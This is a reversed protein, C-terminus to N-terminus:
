VIDIYSALTAINTFRDIQLEDGNSFTLFFNGNSVSGFQAVVQEATLSAQWLGDDLQLADGRGLLFDIIRDQGFGPRFVFTDVGSGGSLLDRGEAGELTDNGYGGELTDDGAGGFLSDRGMQGRLLDGNDEGYVQDDGPGASVTDNGSSGFITDYSWGGSVFDDGSGAYITDNGRAGSITDSGADGVILDSRAGGSLLNNSMDGYIVSPTEVAPVAVLAGTSLAGNAITYSRFFDHDGFLPDILQFGTATRGASIKNVLAPSYAASGLAFDDYSGFIISQDILAGASTGFDALIVLADGGAASLIALEASYDSKGIQHELTISVPRRHVGTYVAVFAAAAERGYDSDSFTLAVVGQSATLNRTHLFTALNQGDLTARSPSSTADVTSTVFYEKRPQYKFIVKL